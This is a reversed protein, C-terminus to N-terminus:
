LRKYRQNSGQTHWPKEAVKLCVMRIKTCSHIVGTKYYEISNTKNGQPCYIKGYYPTLPLICRFLIQLFLSILMSLGCFYFLPLLKTKQFLLPSAHAIMPMYANMGLSAFAEGRCWSAFM